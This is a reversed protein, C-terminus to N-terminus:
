QERLYRRDDFTVVWGPRYVVMLTIAAGTLFAEAWAMLLYWPLYETLLFEPTFRGSLALLICAVCGSAAMALAAGFFAVGFIYVFFHSPLWREVARLVATSVMVPTAGMVLLNLPLSTWELSGAAASGLAVAAIAALGLRAGFMLACASAGLLHFDLGPRLGARISWLLMLAVITGLWLNLRTTDLLSRWRAHLALDAACALVLGGCAWMWWTPFGAVTFNM